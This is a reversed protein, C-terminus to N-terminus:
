TWERVLLGYDVVDHYIEDKQLIRKTQRGAELGTKLLIKRSAENDDFRHATIRHLTLRETTLEPQPNPLPQM